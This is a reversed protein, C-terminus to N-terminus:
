PNPTLPIGEPSLDRRALLEAFGDLSLELGQAALLLMLGERARARCGGGVQAALLLM